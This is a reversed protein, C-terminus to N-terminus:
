IKIRNLSIKKLIKAIEIQKAIPGFIDSYSIGSTDVGSTIRTYHLLHQPTDEEKCISCSLDAAYHTRYNTKCPYTITRFQFLIQKEDTTMEDSTLYSQM